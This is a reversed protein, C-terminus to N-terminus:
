VDGEELECAPYRSLTESDCPPCVEPLGVLGNVGACAELTQISLPNWIQEGGRRVRWTGPPVSKLFGSEVLGGLVASDDGLSSVRGGDTEYLDLAAAIQQQQGVVAVLESRLRAREYVAGGYWVGAVSLVGLIIGAIVGIVLNYM